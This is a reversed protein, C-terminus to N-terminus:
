NELTRRNRKIGSRRLIKDITDKSINLQVSIIPISYHNNYMEIVKDKAEKSHRTYKTM